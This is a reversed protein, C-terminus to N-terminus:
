RRNDLALGARASNDVSRRPRDNLEITVTDLHGATRVALDAGQPFYQRLLGNTNEHSGRQWPAHPDCFYVPMNTAAAFRAHRHVAPAPPLATAEARWRKVTRYGVGVELAAERSGTGAEVLAMYTVREATLPRGGREAWRGPAGLACDRDPRPM